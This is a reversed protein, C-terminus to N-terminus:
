AARLDSNISELVPRMGALQLYDATGIDDLLRLWIENEAIKATNNVVVMKAKANTQAILDFPQKLSLKLENSGWTCNSLLIDLLRRKEQPHQAEYLRRANQALELLM